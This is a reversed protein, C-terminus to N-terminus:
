SVAATAPLLARGTLRLRTDAARQTGARTLPLAVALVLADTHLGAVAELWLALSWCLLVAAMTLGSEYANRLLKQPM